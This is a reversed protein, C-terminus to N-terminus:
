RKNNNFRLLGVLLGKLAANLLSTFSVQCTDCFICYYYGIIIIKMKFRNLVQFHKFSSCMINLHEVLCPHKLANTFTSYTNYMRTFTLCSKSKWPNSCKWTTLKNFHSIVAPFHRAFKIYIFALSDQIAWLFM